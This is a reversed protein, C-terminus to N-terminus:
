ISKRNPVFIYENTWFELFTKWKGKATVTVHRVNKFLRGFNRLMDNEFIKSYRKVAETKFATSEIM